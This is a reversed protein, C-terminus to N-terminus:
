RRSRSTTSRSRKSSCADGGRRDGGALDGTATTTRWASTIAASRWRACTATRITPLRSTRAPGTARWSSADNRISYTPLARAKEAGIGRAILDQVRPRDRVVCYTADPLNVTDPAVSFDESPFARVCVKLRKQHQVLAVSGDAQEEAELEQGAARRGGTADAGARTAEGQDRGQGRRGGVLPLHGTRTLLADKFATYLILFGPNEEMVVHRVYDSEDRAAAEDQESL